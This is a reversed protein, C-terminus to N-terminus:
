EAKESLKQHELINIINWVRIMLLSFQSILNRLNQVKKRVQENYDDWISLTDCKM